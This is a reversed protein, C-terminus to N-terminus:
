GFTKGSSSDRALAAMRHFFLSVDNSCIDAISSAPLMVLSFKSGSNKTLFDLLEFAMLVLVGFLIKDIASFAPFDAILDVEEEDDATFVAPRAVVVHYTLLAVTNFLFLSVSGYVAAQRLRRTSTEHNNITNPIASLNTM